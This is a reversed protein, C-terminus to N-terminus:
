DGLMRRLLARAKILDRQVTRITVGLAEGIEHDTLGGFYRCEFVRALRADIAALRDLADNVALLDDPSDDTGVLNDEFTAVAHGGGRKQRARAKARDILLHRMAVSALALFHARDRWEARSQDVLRLYAENVLATTELTPQAAEPSHHRALHRHAIFRLEEYVLSVMRDLSEREGSRLAGLVDEPSTSSEGPAM